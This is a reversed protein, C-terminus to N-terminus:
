VTYAAGESAVIFNPMSMARTTREMRAGGGLQMEIDEAEGSLIGTGSGGQDEEGPAPVVKGSNRLRLNALNSSLSALSTTQRSVWDSLSEPPPRQDLVQRVCSRLLYPLDEPRTSPSATSESIDGSPSSLCMDSATVSAAAARAALAQRFLAIVRTCETGEIQYCLEELELREIQPVEYSPRAPSEILWSYDVGTKIRRAEQEAHLRERELEKIHFDLEAMLTDCAVVHQDRVPPRYGGSAERYTDSGSGRRWLNRLSLMPALGGGQLSTEIQRELRLWSILHKETRSCARCKNSASLTRRDEQKLM